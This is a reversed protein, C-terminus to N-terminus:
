LCPSPNRNPTRQTLTGIRCVRTAKTNRTRTRNVGIILLCLDIKENPGKTTVEMDIAKVKVEVVVAKTKMAVAMNVMAMTRAMAMTVTMALTM